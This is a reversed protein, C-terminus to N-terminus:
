KKWEPAPAPRSMQKKLAEGRESQKLLSEVRDLEAPSYGAGTLLEKAAKAADTADARAGGRPHM